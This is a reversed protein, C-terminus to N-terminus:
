GRWDPGVSMTHFPVGPAKIPNVMRTGRIYVVSDWPVGAVTAQAVLADLERLTFAQGDQAHATTVREAM